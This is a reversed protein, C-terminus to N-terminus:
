AADKGLGLHAPCLHAIAYAELLARERPDIVELVRFRYRERLKSGDSDLHHLAFSSQAHLHNNLRQALGKKGRLTRGVHAPRGKPDLIVYVGQETPAQLREGSRPFAHIPQEMLRAFLKEVKKLERPM